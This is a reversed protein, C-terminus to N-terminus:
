SPHNRSILAFKAQIVLCNADSTAAPYPLIAIEGNTAGERDHYWWLEKPSTSNGDHVLVHVYILVAM